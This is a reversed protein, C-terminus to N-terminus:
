MVALAHSSRRFFSATRGERKIEFIQYAAPDKGATVAARTVDAAVRIPRFRHEVASETVSKGLHRAIGSHIRLAAM